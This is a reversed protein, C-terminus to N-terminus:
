EGGRAVLIRLPYARAQQKIRVGLVIDDDELSLHKIDVFVPDDLAPIGDKPPGGQHIDQKPILTESLDFGNLAHALTPLLGFLFIVFFLYNIILRPM